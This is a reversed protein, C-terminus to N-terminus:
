IQARFRWKQEFTVGASRYGVQVVKLAMYLTSDRIIWHHSKRVNTQSAMLFKPGNLFFTCFPSTWPSPSYFNISFSIWKNLM